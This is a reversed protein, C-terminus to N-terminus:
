PASLSVFGGRIAIAMGALFCLSSLLYVVMQSWWWPNHFPRAAQQHFSGLYRFVFIVSAFFVGVVLVVMGWLLYPKMVDAAGDNNWIAQLFAALAVAGGGNILALGRGGINLMEARAKMTENPDLLAM